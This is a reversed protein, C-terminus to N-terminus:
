RGDFPPYVEPLPLAPPLPTPADVVCLADVLLFLYRRWGDSGPEFSALPGTLMMMLRPTDEETLDERFVGDAQGRRIIRNLGDIFATPLDMNMLGVTAAAALLLKKDSNTTLAPELVMLLAKRADPERAASELAPAMVGDAQRDLVAKILAAKNAFRRFLTTTGVGAESAIEELQVDIGQEIFLKEAANVIKFFNRAADARLPFPQHDVM